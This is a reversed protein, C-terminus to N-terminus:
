NLGTWVAYFFGVSAFRWMHPAAHACARLPHPPHPAAATHRRVNEARGFGFRDLAAARYAMGGVRALAGSAAFLFREGFWLVATGRSFPSPLTSFSYKCCRGRRRATRTWSFSVAVRPLLRLAPEGDTRGGFRLKSALRRLPAHGAARTVPTIAVASRCRAPVVPTAKTFCCTQFLTGAFFALLAVGGRACVRGCLLV